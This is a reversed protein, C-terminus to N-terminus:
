LGATGRSFGLEEVTYLPLYAGVAGVGVGMLLAFATLRNVARDLRRGLARSRRGEPATEDAPVARTAAAHREESPRPVYRVTLALGAAGLLGCGGLAARWGAAGAVGPLVLGALFAGIQVGSQKVGTVIGHRGAQVVRAALQNTAPNGFAVSVGFVAAGAVLGAYHRGGAAAVAVGLGGTAFAVVLSRRGGFRDVLPGAVPSLVAGVTYMVTTLSGLATRSIGLDETIFPGRAGLAYPLLTCVAM